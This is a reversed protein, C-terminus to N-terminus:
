GNRNASQIADLYRHSARRQIVRGVPGALRLLVTAPRSVPRATFRVEGDTSKEVVFEEFGLEPHGPLTVYRFGGRDPEDFVDIVRCPALVLLPGMPMGVVVNTGVAVRERSPLVVLGAGRQVGWTLTMDVAAAFTADGHGVRRRYVDVRLGPFTEGEPDGRWTPEDGAAAELARQLATTDGRRALKM